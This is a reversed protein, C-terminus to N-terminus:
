FFYSATLRFQRPTGPQVWVNAFSNTFFTEDFVNDVDIRVAFKDSPRIEGFVRATTYSPLNFDFGTFGAREDVYLVGAGVEVPMKAINLGKSVQVSLQNEPSNILQDGAEITAL